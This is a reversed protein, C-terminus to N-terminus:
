SLFIWRRLAGPWVIGVACTCTIGQRLMWARALRWLSAVVWSYM